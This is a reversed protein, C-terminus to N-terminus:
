GAAARPEARLALYLSLLYVFLFLALCLEKTEGPAIDLKDPLSFGLMLGLKKPLAIVVAILASPFCEFTPWIWGWPGPSQFDRGRLGRRRRVLPAIVGGALAGLTLILRPLQDLYSELAPDNHLNFEHQENREAISEPPKFGLLHQGWSMEEGAFYVLGLTLVLMLPGFLRWRVRRRRGFCLLGSVIAGALFAVTLNEVLGHESRMWRRYVEADWAKLVLQAVVM